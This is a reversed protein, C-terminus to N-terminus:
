KAKARRARSKPRHTLEPGIAPLLCRSIVATWTDHDPPTSAARRRWPDETARREPAVPRGVEGAGVEYEIGGTGIGQGLVETGGDGGISYKQVKFTQAQAAGPAAVALVLLLAPATMIHPTM